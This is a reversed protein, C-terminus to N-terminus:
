FRRLDIIGGLYVQCFILISIKSVPADGEPRQRKRRFSNSGPAGVRDNRLISDQGIVVVSLHQLIRIIIVQKKLTIRVRRSLIIERQNNKIRGTYKCFCGMCVRYLIVRGVGYFSTFFLRSKNEIIGSFRMLCGSIPMASQKFSFPFHLIPV